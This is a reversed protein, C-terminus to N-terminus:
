EAWFCSRNAARHDLKAGGNEFRRRFSEDRDEPYTRLVTRGVPCGPLPKIVTFGLYYEDSFHKCLSRFDTRKGARRLRRFRSQLEAADLSFFHIRTCSNKYHYLNKSYFVSHDEMYDRDIYHGEVVAARCGLDRVYREVYGLQRHAEDKTVLLPDELELLDSLGQQQTLPEFRINQDPSAM